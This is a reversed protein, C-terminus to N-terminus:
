NIHVNDQVSHLPPPIDHEPPVTKKSHAIRYNQPTRSEREALKLEKAKKWAEEYCWPLWEQPNTKIDEFFELCRSIYQIPNQKALVASSALTMSIDGILSGNETQYALSAMRHRVVSIISREADNSDLPCGAYKLFGSCAELNKAAYSLAHGIPERPLWNKSEIESLVRERISTIFISSKEQHLELREQSTLQNKIAAKEIAYIEKISSVIFDCLEPAQSKLDAFINRLHTLCHVTEVRSDIVKTGGCALVFGRKDKEPFVHTATAKAAADSMRIVPLQDERLQNLEHANEGQHRRGSIYACVKHGDEYGLIATTNIGTRLKEKSIGFKEAAKIEEQIERYICIIRCFGDDLIQVDANAAFSLIANYLGQLKTAAENMIDWQRSDSLHFGLWGNLREIRLNPIALHHRMVLLTAATEYSAGHIHDESIAEPVSATIVQYCSNCRLKEISFEEVEFTANVYIRGIVGPPIPHLTGMHCSVCREGAKVGLIPLKTTKSAINEIAQKGSGDPKGGKSKDRGDKTKSPGDKPKPPVPDKEPKDDASDAPTPTEQSSSEPSESSSNQSSDSDKVSGSDKTSDSNNVPDSDKASERDQQEKQERQIKRAREVYQEYTLGMKRAADEIMAKIVDFAENIVPLDKQKIKGKKIRSAVEDFKDLCLWAYSDCGCSIGLKM